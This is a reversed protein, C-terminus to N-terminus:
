INTKLRKVRWVGVYEYQRPYDTNKILGYFIRECDPFFVETTKVDTLFFLKNKM